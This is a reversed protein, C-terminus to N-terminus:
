QLLKEAEDIVRPPVIPEAPGARGHRYVLLQTPDQANFRGDDNADRTIRLYLVSGNDALRFDTLETGAPTLRKLKRGALNSLYLQEADAPTLRGDDNTDATVTRYLLVNRMPKHKPRYFQTILARKDFLLHVQGSEGHRFVLNHWRIGSRYAWAYETEKM